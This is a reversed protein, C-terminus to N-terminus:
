IYQECFFAPQLKEYFINLCFNLVLRTIILAIQALVILLNNLILLPSRAKIGIIFIRYNLGSIIPVFQRM